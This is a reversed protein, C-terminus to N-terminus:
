LDIIKSRDRFWAALDSEKMDGSAVRLMVDVAEDIRRAMLYGNDLLFVVAVELAVRKNGDTFCHNRALGFAYSAALEFIDPSDYAILHRPRALASDLAGLDRIGPAGGYKAIQGSHLQLVDDRDIWSPEDIM